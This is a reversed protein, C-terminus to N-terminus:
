WRLRMSVLQSERSTKGEFRLLTRPWNEEQNEAERQGYDVEKWAQLLSSGDNLVGRDNPIWLVPRLTGPTLWM